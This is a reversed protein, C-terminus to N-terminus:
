NECTINSCNNLTETSLITRSRMSGSNCRAPRVAMCSCPPASNWTSVSRGQRISFNPLSNHVTRGPLSVTM